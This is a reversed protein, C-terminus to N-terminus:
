NQVNKGMQRQLEKLKEVLAIRTIHSIPKGTLVSMMKVNDRLEASIYITTRVFRKPDSMKKEILM